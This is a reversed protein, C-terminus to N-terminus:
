YSLTKFATESSAFVQEHSMEKIMSNYLHVKEDDIMEQANIYTKQSTILIALEPSVPYYLELNKSEELLSKGFAYTNIVPQDGTIFKNHSCSADLLVLKLEKSESINHGLNTAFIHAMIPWIKKIDVLENNGIAQEIDKRIKKTRMYQTSLYYAFTMRGEEDQFFTIDRSLISTLYKNGINEIEAQYNEELNIINKEIEDKLKGSYVKDKKALRQFYFPMTMNNLFELHAPKLGEPSGDISLKHIYQKEKESIDQLQYFYNEHAINM